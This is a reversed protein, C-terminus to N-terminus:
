TSERLIAALDVPDITTLDLEFLHRNRRLREDDWQWWEFGALVAIVPEPYRWRIFRAPAGAAVAYAPVDRTVVSGAGIIAGDGIEVGPGVVVSDGMWVGNGITVPEYPGLVSRAGITRRQLDEEINLFQMLHNGSRVVLRGGIACYAGITCREIYSPENIRTGRGIVLGVALYSGPAVQVDDRYFRVRHRLNCLRRSIRNRSSRLLRAVIRPLPSPPHARRHEIM